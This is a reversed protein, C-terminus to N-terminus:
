SGFTRCLRIPFISYESPPSLDRGCTRTVVQSFNACMGEHLTHVIEQFYASDEKSPHPSADETTVVDICIAINAYLQYSLTPPYICAMVDKLDLFEPMLTSAPSSDLNDTPPSMLPIYELDGGTVQM